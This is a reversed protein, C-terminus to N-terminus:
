RTTAAAAGDTRRWKEHVTVGRLRWGSRTRV